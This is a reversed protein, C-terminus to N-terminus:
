PTVLSPSALILAAASTIGIISRVSSSPTAFLQMMMLNTNVLSLGQYVFNGGSNGPTGDAAVAVSAYVPEARVSGAVACLDEYPSAAASGSSVNAAAKRISPTGLFVGFSFSTKSSSSKNSYIIIIDTPAGLSPPSHVRHLTIWEKWTWRQKLSTRQLKTQAMGSAQAFSSNARAGKRFVCVFLAVM